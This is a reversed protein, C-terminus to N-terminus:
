SIQMTYLPLGCLVQLRSVWLEVELNSIIVPVYMYILTVSQVDIQDWLKLNRNSFLIRKGRHKM